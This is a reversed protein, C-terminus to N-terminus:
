YSEGCLFPSVHYHCQFSDSLWCCSDTELARPAGPGAAESGRLAAPRGCGGAAAGAAGRGCRREALAPRQGGGRAPPLPPPPM